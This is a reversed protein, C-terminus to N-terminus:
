YVFHEKRGTFPMKTSGHDTDECVMKPDLAFSSIWAYLPDTEFTTSHM